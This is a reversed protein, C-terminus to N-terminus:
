QVVFPEFMKTVIVLIALVVGLISATIVVPPRPKRAVFLTRIGCWIGFVFLARPLIFLPSMEIHWGLPLLLPGLYCIDSGEFAAYAIASLPLSALLCILSELALERAKEYNSRKVGRRRYCWLCLPGVIAIVPLGLVLWNALEEMHFLDHVSAGAVFTWIGLAACYTVYSRYPPLREGASNRMVLVLGTIFSTTSLILFVGTALHVDVRHAREIFHGISGLVDFLYLCDFLLVIVAVLSIEHVRRVVQPTTLPTRPSLPCETM